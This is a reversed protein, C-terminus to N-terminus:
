KRLVFYAVIVITLLVVANLAIILPM